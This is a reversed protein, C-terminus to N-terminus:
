GIVLAAARLLAVDLLAFLGGVLAGVVAAVLSGVIAVLLVLFVGEVGVNFLVLSAVLGLTPAFVALGTAGGWVLAATAAGRADPVGVAPSVEARRLAQDTTAVTVGWLYCYAVAGPITGLSGLLDGVAGSLHLGTVGLAVLLAAHLSGTAWACLSPREFEDASPLEVM